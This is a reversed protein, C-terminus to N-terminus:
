RALMFGIGFRTISRNYDILSEGYGHWATFLLYSEVSWPFPVSYNLGIAGNGTRLNGQLSFHALHDDYLAYYIDLKSYGLYDTIDPNDDGAPSGPFEKEDEPLRYWLKAYVLVKGRVYYPALYLRNWSRSLAVRQGNSEHEFGIDVGMRKDPMAGPSFRYLIEPNYNTERFPSSNESDYAQWFSQQTYGLYFRSKFLQYKASLQFVVETQSGNYANAVTVPLIYMEKYFSLGAETNIRGFTVADEQAASPSTLAPSPCFCSVFSAVACSLMCIAARRSRFSRRTIFSRSSTWDYM